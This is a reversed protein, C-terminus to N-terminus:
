RKHSFRKYYIRSFLLLVACCAITLGARPIGSDFSESVFRIHVFVLALATVTGFRHQLQWNKQSFGLGRRWVSGVAIGLILVLLGVGVFEPWYRKEFPFFTFNEAAVIFFPHFLVLVAIIKGSTQHARYLHKLSFAKELLSFRSVLIVQFLMLMAALLGMVKGTRLWSRDMGLKYYLSTSEFFFPISAAMVTLLLGAAIFGTQLM